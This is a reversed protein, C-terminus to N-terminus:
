YKQLSPYFFTLTAVTFLNCSSFFVQKEGVVAPTHPIHNSDCEQLECLANGHTPVLLRWSKPCDKHRCLIYHIERGKSPPYKNGLRQKNIRLSEKELVKIADAKTNFDKMTRYRKSRGRKRKPPRNIFVEAQRGPPRIAALEGEADTAEDSDNVADTAEDSDNAAGNNNRAVPTNSDM